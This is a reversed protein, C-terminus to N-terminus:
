FRAAGRVRGKAEHRPPAALRGRAKSPIPRQRKIPRGADWRQHKSLSGAAGLLELASIRKRRAKPAPMVEAVPSPLFQPLEDEDEDEARVVDRVDNFRQSATVEFDLEDDSM